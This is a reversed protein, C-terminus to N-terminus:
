VTVKLSSLDGYIRHTLYRAKVSTTLTDITTLLSFRAGGIASPNANLVTNLGIVPAMGDTLFDIFPSATIFVGRASARSRGNEAILSKPTAKLITTSGLVLEILGGSACPDTEVWSDNFFAAGVGTYSGLSNLKFEKQGTATYSEEYENLEHQFHPLGAPCVRWNCVIIPTIVMGAVGTGLTGIEALKGFEIELIGDQDFALMPVYFAATTPDMVQPHGFYLPITLTHSLAHEMLLAAQPGLDPIETVVIDATTGQAIAIVSKYDLQDVNAAYRLLGAGSVGNIYNHGGATFTVKRVINSLGDMLKTFSVNDATGIDMEVQLQLEMSELHRTRPITVRCTQYATSLTYSSTEPVIRDKFKPFYGM